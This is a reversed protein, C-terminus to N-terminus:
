LKEEYIKIAKKLDTIKTTMIRFCAGNLNMFDFMDKELFELFRECSEKHIKSTRTRKLRTNGKAIQLETM